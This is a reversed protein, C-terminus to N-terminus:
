GVIRFDAERRTGTSVLADLSDSAATLDEAVLEWYNSDLDVPDSDLGMLVQQVGRWVAEGPYGADGLLARAEAASERVGAARYRATEPEERWGEIMTVMRLALDRM